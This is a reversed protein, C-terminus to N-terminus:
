LTYEFLTICGNQVKVLYENEKHQIITGNECMEPFGVDSFVAKQVTVKKNGDFFFAGPYVPPAMARVWNYIREKQWNWDIEGDDPTRKPYYTAKSEDQKKTEVNGSQVKSIVEDILLPYSEKYKELISGGTDEKTIPIVKQAIINGKDCETTIIHATIGTEKENNIIAWVHPTRGRYKPLLSGHVNIAYSKPYTILDNEILFLYNISLVIDPKDKINNRFSESKNNRPNGVFCYIKNDSCFAQIVDSKKDTFVSHIKVGTKSFLYKLLSYGLNGSILLCISLKKM